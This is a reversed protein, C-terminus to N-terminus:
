EKTRPMNSLTELIHNHQDAQIKEFREVLREIRDSNNKDMKDILKELRNFTKEGASFQLAHERSCSAQREQCHTDTVIHANEVKAVREQNREVDRQLKGVWMGFGLFGMLVIWYDKLYEIM